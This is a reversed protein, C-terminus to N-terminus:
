KRRRLLLAGAGLLGLVIVSPEPVPVVGFSTFGTMVTDNPSPPDSLKQTYTFPSSSGFGSGAAFAAEYSAFVSADWVRVALSVPVGVGGLPLALVPKGSWTGPSTTTPVRFKSLSGAVATLSGANAGAYLQSVYNTGVLATGSLPDGLFVLPLGVSAGNSFNVTGQAFASGVTAIILLGTIYLKKM